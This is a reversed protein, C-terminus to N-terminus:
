EIQESNHTIKASQVCNTLLKTGLIAVVFPNDLVFKFHTIKPSETPLFTLCLKEKSSIAIRVIKKQIPCRFSLNKSCFLCVWYLNYKKPQLTCIWKNIQHIQKQDFCRSSGCEILDTNGLWPESSGIKDRCIM